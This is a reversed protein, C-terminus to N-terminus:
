KRASFSHDLGAGINPNGTGPLQSQSNFNRPSRSQLAEVKFDGRVDTSNYTELTINQVGAALLDQSSNAPSLPAVDNSTPTSPLMIWKSYDNRRRM